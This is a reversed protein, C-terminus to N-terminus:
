PLSPLFVGCQPTRKPVQENGVQVSKALAEGLKLEQAITVSASHKIASFCSWIPIKGWCLSNGRLTLTISSMSQGLSNIIKLRIGLWRLWTESSPFDNTIDLEM